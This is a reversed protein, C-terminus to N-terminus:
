KSNKSLIEKTLKLKIKVAKDNPNLKLAKEYEYLAKKYNKRIYFINGLDTFVDAHNPDLKISEKYAQIANEYIGYRSYINGLNYYADFNNPNIEVAEKYMKIATKYDGQASYIIGLNYYTDTRAQNIDIVKQYTKVAQKYKKQHYYITGINHYASIYNPNLEITKKYECVADEYLSLNQYLYGLNFHDIANNPSIRLVKEFNLIAKEYKKERQYLIGLESYPKDNQPYKDAAEEWLAIPNDYLKNRKWATLSLISIYTVIFAIFINKFTRKKNISFLYYFIFLLMLYFGFGALYLRREAMAMATPFFSSTPTLTIFFWLISFIIVKSNSTKKRYKIYAFIFLLVVFFFSIIVRYDFVSRPPAIYHYICLGLPVLLIKIYKIIMFPQILFYSKRSWTLNTEVDGLGGLYVYRAVLYIVLIIWFLLHHYKKSLVKRFSFNSLFIYDFSLIIVPLTIAIPKSALALFFCFLALAYTKKSEFKKIFFFLSMLYFLTALISSRAFIYSVADINVPHVAFLLAAFFSYLNFNKEYVYFFIKKTLFFILIVSFIHLIINILHYGSPNLKGFHYNLTYTLYVLPRSPDNREFLQNKKNYPYVLKKPINSLNKIDPNNVIKHIDDFIFPTHLSPFYVWFTILILLCIFIYNRNKTLMLQKNKKKRMKM